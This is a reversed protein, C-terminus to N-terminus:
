MYIGIMELVFVDIMYNEWGEMRGSREDRGIELKRATVKGRSEIHFLSSPSGRGGFIGFRPLNESGCDWEGCDM